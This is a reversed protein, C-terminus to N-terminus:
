TMVHFLVAVVSMTEPFTRWETLSRLHKLCVGDSPLCLDWGSATQLRTCSVCMSSLTLYFADQHYVSFTRGFLPMLAQTWIGLVEPFRLPLWPSCLCTSVQFWAPQCTHDVQCLELGVLPEGSRVRTWGSSWSLNTGQSGCMTCMWIQTGMYVYARTHARMRECVCM